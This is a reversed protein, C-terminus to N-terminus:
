VAAKPVSEVRPRRKEGRREFARAAQDLLVAVIVITGQATLQWFPSINLLNMGNILVTMILCGVVTGRVGGEGGFLSTGGIVVAAVVPLLLDASVEASAANMRATLILGAIGALLGSATYVKILNIKVDIGSLRAAEPNAGMAYIERGMPTRHLLMWAAAVILTMLVIPMPVGILEGRGLFLFPAPFGFFVESSAVLVAFGQAIWLMGYTVIFAPLRVIAIMVGNILGCFTTLALAGFAALYWPIGETMLMGSFCAALALLSAISLDIGGTLIVATLGTAMIIMLSAQRLVNVLNQPALFAPAVIAVAVCLVLLALVRSLSFLLQRIDLM